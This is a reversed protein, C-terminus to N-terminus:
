NVINYGGDVSIVAGNVFTNECVAVCMQAIEQPTAFRNLVTKSAIKERLWEPKEKQWETDVFGPCVANVRVRKDAYERALCKALMNIGAKSVGYPISTAHPHLSLASSIFVISGDEAMQRYLKQAILFPMN